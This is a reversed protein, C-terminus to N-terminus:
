THPTPETHHTTQCARRHCCRQAAKHGHGSNPPESRLTTQSVPRNPPSFEFTTCDSCKAGAITKPQMTLADRRLREPQSVNRRFRVKDSYRLSFSRLPKAVFTGHKGRRQHNDPDSAALVLFDALCRGFAPVSYTVLWRRQPRTPAHERHCCRPRNTATTTSLRPSSRAQNAHFSHKPTQEPRREVAKATLPWFSRTM